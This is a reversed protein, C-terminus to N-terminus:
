TLPKAIIGFHKVFKRYYGALGLFSRLEKINAPVPWEVVDRVKDPNTAVGEASITYGLYSIKRKAFSCQLTQNEV